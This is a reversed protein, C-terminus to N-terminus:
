KKKPLELFDEIIFDIYEDSVNLGIKKAFKKASNLVYEKKVQGKGSGIHEEAFLIMDQVAEYFATVKGSKDKNKLITIVLSVVSLIVAVILQWNEKVFEFIVKM